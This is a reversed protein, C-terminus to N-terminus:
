NLCISPRFNLYNLRVSPKDPHFFLATYSIIIAQPGEFSLVRSTASVILCSFLLKSIKTKSCDPLPLALATQSAILLDLYSVIAIRSASM